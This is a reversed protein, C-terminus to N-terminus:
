STARGPVALSSTDNESEVNTITNENLKGENWYINAYWGRAVSRANVYVVTRINM